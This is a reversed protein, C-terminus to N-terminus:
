KTWTKSMMFLNSSSGKRFGGPKVAKQGKPSSLEFQQPRLHLLGFRSKDIDPLSGLSKPQAPRVYGIRGVSRGTRINPLALRSPDDEEEEVEVEASPKKRRRETEVEVWYNLVDIGTPDKTEPRELLM